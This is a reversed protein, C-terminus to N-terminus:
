KLEFVYTPLTGAEVDLVTEPKTEALFYLTGLPVALADAIKRATPLAPSSKGKLINHIAVRSVGSLKALDVLTYGLARIAKQTFLIKQSM